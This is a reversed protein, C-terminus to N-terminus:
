SDRSTSAVTERKPRKGKLISEFSGDNKSDDEVKDIEKVAKEVKDDKLYDTVKKIRDGELAELQKMLEANAEAAEVVIDTPAVTPVNKAKLAVNVAQYNRILYDNQKWQAKLGKILAKKEEAASLTEENLLVLGYREMAFFLHNYVDPDYFKKRENPAFCFTVGAHMGEIMKSATSWLIM